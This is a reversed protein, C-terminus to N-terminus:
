MAASSTKGLVARLMLLMAPTQGRMKDLPPTTVNTAVHLGLRGEGLPVVIFTTGNRLARQRLLPERIAAPDFAEDELWRGLAVFTGNPRDLRSDCHAVLRDGGARATHLLRVTAPARAPLGGVPLRRRLTGEGGMPASM